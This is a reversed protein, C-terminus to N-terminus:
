QNLCTAGKMQEIIEPHCYIKDGMQIMGPVQKSQFGWAKMLKKHVRRSRNRSKKFNEIKQMIRDSSIIPIGALMSLMGSQHGIYALPNTTQTM